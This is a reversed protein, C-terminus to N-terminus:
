KGSCAHGYNCYWRNIGVFECFLHIIAGLLFFGLIMQLNKDWTLKSREMIFVILYGLVVTLVGVAAAEIALIKLDM